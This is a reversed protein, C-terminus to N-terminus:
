KFLPESVFTEMHIHRIKLFVKIVSCKRAVAAAYMFPKYAVLGWIAFQQDVKLSWGEKVSLLYLFLLNFHLKEKTVFWFYSNFRCYVLIWSDSFCRRSFKLILSQLIPKSDQFDNFEECVYTIPWVILCGNLLRSGLFGQIYLCNQPSLSSGLQKYLFLTYVKKDFYKWVCLNEFWLLIM